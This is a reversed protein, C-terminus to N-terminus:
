LHICVGCYTLVLNFQVVVIFLIFGPLFHVRISWYLFNRFLSYSVTCCLVLLKKVCILILPM